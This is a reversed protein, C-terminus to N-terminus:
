CWDERSQYVNDGADSAPALSSVVAAAEVPVRTLVNVCTGERLRKIRREPLLRTVLQRKAGTRVCLCGLQYIPTEPFSGQRCNPSYVLPHVSAM